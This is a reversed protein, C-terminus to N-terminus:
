GNISEAEVEIRLGYKAEPNTGIEMDNDSSIWKWDLYYTDNENPDLVFESVTLGSANTYDGYIYSDNKKLKYKMNIHYINDEIFTISYKIRYSTNNRVIFEYTNESEPAIYGDVNYISKSFIQLDTSGNWEIPDKENDYVNLQEDIFIGEVTVTVTSKVKGDKTKATITVTGPNVGSVKGTSDVTAVSTDSSTWIIERDTANDPEVTAIIQQFGRTTITFESPNLVINEVPIIIATITVTCTAKVKGDKTKATITSTGPKLGTIKGTSDVTVVEQDSSTWTLTQDTANEPEVIAVIQASTGETISVSTPNLTINSVPISEITVTCTSKVKGDKTKAIVTATGPKLGTIVGKSDVEVISSDSSSWIIERETANEPEVKAIIQDVDGVKLTKKNSDLVIKDVDIINKTVTVVCTTTIGNSSTVTIVTTGEKLGKIVGKEDVTAVSPDSSTWTFKSKALSSPKVIVALELQSGEKVSINKQAFSLNKIVPTETKKNDNSKHPKSTPTAVPHCKNDDCKIDIIDVNGNPNNKYKNKEKNLACNHILLLIIIIVLGIKVGLDIRKKLKDNTKIM